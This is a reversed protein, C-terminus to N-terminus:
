EATVPVPETKLGLAIVENKLRETTAEDLNMNEKVAAVYHLGHEMTQFEGTNGMLIAYGKETKKAEPKMLIISAHPKKTCNPCKIVAPYVAIDKCQIMSKGLKYFEKCTQITRERQGVGFLLDILPDTDAEVKVTNIREDEAIKQILDLFEEPGIKEIILLDLICFLGQLKHNPFTAIVEDGTKVRFTKRTKSATIALTRM